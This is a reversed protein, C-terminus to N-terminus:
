RGMSDNLIARDLGGVIACNTFYNSAANRGMQAAQHQRRSKKTERQNKDFLHFPPLRLIYDEKSDMQWPSILGVGIRKLWNPVPRHMANHPGGSRAM